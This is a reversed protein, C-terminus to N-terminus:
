IGGLSVTTYNQLSSTQCRVNSILRVDGFMSSHCDLVNGLGYRMHHRRLLSIRVRNRTSVVTEVVYGWFSLSLNTQSM